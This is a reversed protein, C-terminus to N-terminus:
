DEDLDDLDDVDDDDDEDVPRRTKTKAKAEAKEREARKAARKADNQEKLKALADKRSSEIEGGSVAKLISQVQPDKTGSWSYRARNGPVIEREIRGSGDRAMKRILTRVERPKYAKGTQRQLFACLEQIGFEPADARKARKKKPTDTLEEDLGELEVDDDLEELEEVPEPKRKSKTQTAMPM